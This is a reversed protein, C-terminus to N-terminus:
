TKPVKVLHQRAIGAMRLVREEEERGERLRRAAGRQHVVVGAVVVVLGGVAGAM